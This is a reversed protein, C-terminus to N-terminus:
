WGFENSERERRNMEAEYETFSAKAPDFSRAQGSGGLPNIPEDVSDDTAPETTSPDPSPQSELKDALKDLERVLRAETKLNFLKTAVEPHTALHYMVAPANDMESVAILTRENLPFEAKQMLAPYDDPMEEWLDAKENIAYIAEMEPANGSDPSDASKKWEELDAEYEDYDDYDAPDPESKKGEVAKLRAELEAAKRLAEHKERTLKGIRKQVRANGKDAGPKSADPKDAKTDGKPEDAHGSTEFEEDQNRKLDSGGRFANDEGTDDTPAEKSDGAAQQLEATTDEGENTVEVPSDQGFDDFDNMPPM